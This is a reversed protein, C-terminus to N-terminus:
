NLTKTPKSNNDAKSYTGDLISSYTAAQNLVELASKLEKDDSLTSEIRGKQYYYRSAIEQQLIDIIEAKNEILDKKKHQAIAQLM